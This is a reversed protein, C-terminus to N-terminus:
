DNDSFYFDEEESESLTGNNGPFMEWVVFTDNETNGCRRMTQKTSPTPTFSKSSPAHKCVNFQNKKMRKQLQYVYKDDNTRNPSGMMGPTIHLCQPTKVEPFVKSMPTLPEMDSLTFDHDSPCISPMEFRKNQMAASSFVDEVDERPMTDLFQRVQQKRKLTGVRASIVPHDPDKPAEVKEKQKKKARKAPTQSTGLSTHQSHCEEASRTGVVRAVKEWFGALHKPYYSVAEQLKMLEAETWKDADQEQSIAANGQNAKPKKNSQTLKPLPKAPSTSNTCKSQKNNQKTVRTRKRMENESEESANPSDSSPFMHSPQSKNLVRKGRKRHAERGTKKRGIVQEDSSATDNVSETSAQVAQKRGFVRLSTGTPNETQQKSRKTSSKESESLKQPVNEVYLTQVTAPRRRSSRTPRGSWEEPSDHTQQKSRRTSSKLSKSQKQPVNDVYLTQVTAVRRRISRTQRGSWEEPSSLTEVPAEPSYSPKEEPEINARNCKRVPAKVRRLPVSAEVDRPSECQQLGESCPLFVRAPKQSARMSVTTTVPICISTDYGEHITVNMHADLIVRGGKWYELPPKITRGSRSVKSSLLAPPCSNCTKLSKQRHRKVAHINSPTESKTESFLSRGKSTRKTERSPDDRSESLFREYLAKWDPPFGSAFKKLLWKPFDSDVKMNMKGVLVYVSGSVTKVVSSSVREVILNSHWQTNEAQHTGDVFLGHSNKRLFWNQLYIVGESPFKTRQPCKKRKFVAEQKKPISIRPTNLVLPDELLVPQPSVAPSLVDEPPDTDAQCNAPQVRSWKVPVVSEPVSSFAIDGMEGMNHATSPPTDRSQRFNGGFPDMSNGSVKSVEHQETKMERAKMYAFMKAPSMPPICEVYVNCRKMAIPRLSSFVSNHTFQNMDSPDDSIGRINAVNEICTGKDESAASSTKRQQPQSISGNSDEKTSSSVKMFDQPEWKRKLRKRTPSLMYAPFMLKDLPACGDDLESSARGSEVPQLKVPTRSTVEFGGSDRIQPPKTHMQTKNVRSSPCSVATSELFTRKRPTCGHGTITGPPMEEVHDSSIDSYLYGLTKQPSTIPSLTLAQAQNRYSGYRQNEKHQEAIWTSEAGKKPSKFVAGHKETLNSVNFNCLPDDSTFTGEKSCIEREVKSKLKAFVKAPSEFRKNTQLLVHHYSAM